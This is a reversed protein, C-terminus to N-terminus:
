PFMQDLRRRDRKTPRGSGRERALVQEIRSVKVRAWEEPPTRDDCYAAVDKAGVRRPPFALVAASRHVLGQQWGIIEGLRLERAPKAPRGNVTVAGARCAEMALSRTKFLRVCWLWKDLRVSSLDTDSM